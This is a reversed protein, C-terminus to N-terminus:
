NGRGSGQNGGGGTTPRQFGGNGGDGGGQGGTPAGGVGAPRQGGGFIGGLGTSTNAKVITLIIKEGETLGGTIEVQNSTRVGVQVEKVVPQGAADKVKVSAKGQRITVAQAPVWLVGPRDTVVVNVAANMGAMLGQTSDFQVTVDFNAIDNKFVGEPNIKIVKGTYPRGALADLTIEAKQGIKVKAIDLEDVSITVQMAGYDAVRFLSQNTSVRDGIRSTLASVQGDVPAKVQLDSVDSQRSALTIAAQDVKQKSTRLSDDPNKSPDLLNTLADQQVSLDNKAQELQNQLTDSTLWAMIFGTNVYAGDRLDNGNNDKGLQSLTGAVQARVETVENKISGNATLVYPLEQFLSDRDFTVTGVMGPRAGYAPALAISVPVTADRNGSGPTAAGGSTVVTGVFTGLGTLNVKVRGGVRVAAAAEQSLGVVFTPASDNYLTFVLSNNTVNSGVTANVATIIGNVPSKISLNDVDQQRQQLTLRATAVKLQQSRVGTDLPHLLKDLNAQSNELDLKAQNLSAVLNTNDLVMIVQGTKVKDGDQALLQSVTGTQNSKVTVGNVSAVPGTGSITVHIDGKRVQTEVITDAKAAAKSSKNKTYWWGGGALVVVILIAAIVKNRM